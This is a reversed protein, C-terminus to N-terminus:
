GAYNRTKDYRSYCPRIVRGVPIHYLHGNIEKHESEEDSLATGCRPCWNIIYKDRYILDREYLKVFVEKVANSLGEDMTFREREWDCACGLMKLQEIIRGGKEEKWEWVREVFKERGLKHRDLGESALQREVVNQTAIGAHDMGPMWLTEFGLMKKYRIFVDQITNNYAHGIHLAATVNPPPIVITYPPKDSNPNAHFYGNKMWQDYRRSEVGKPDYVKSIETNM